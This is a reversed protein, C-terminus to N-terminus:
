SALSAGGRSDAYRFGAEHLRSLLADLPVQRHPPALGAAVPATSALDRAALAAPIVAMRHSGIAGWLV